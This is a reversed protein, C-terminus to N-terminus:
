SAMSAIITDGSAVSDLSKRGCNLPTSPDFPPSSPNTEQEIGGATGLPEQATDDDPTFDAFDEEVNTLVVTSERRLNPTRTPSSDQNEEGDFITGRPSEQVQTPFFGENGDADDESSGQVRSLSARLADEFVDLVAEQRQASAMIEQKARVLKAKSRKVRELAEHVDESEQQFLTFIINEKWAPCTAELMEVKDKDLEIRSLIEEALLQGRQSLMEMEVPSAAQVTQSEVVSEVNKPDDLMGLLHNIGASEDDLDDEDFLRDWTCEVGGTMLSRWISPGSAVPSAQGSKEVGDKWEIRHADVEVGESGADDEEDSALLSAEEADMVLSIKSASEVDSDVIQEGDPEEAITELNTSEFADQNADETTETEADKKGGGFMQTLTPQFTQAFSFMKSQVNQVAATSVRAKAGRGDLRKNLENVDPLFRSQEPRGTNDVQIAAEHKRWMDRRHKKLKRRVADTQDEYREATKELKLLRKMLNKEQAADSQVTDMVDFANCEATDNTCPCNSCLPCSGRARKKARTPAAKRPAKAPPIDSNNNAPAIATNAASRDRKKREPAVAKAPVVTEKKSSVKADVSPLVTNSRDDIPGDKVGKPPKRGKTKQNAVTAKPETDEAKEVVSKSPNKSKDTGPLSSAGQGKKTIKTTSHDGLQHAVPGVSTVPKAVQQRNPELSALPETKNGVVRTDTAPPSPNNLTYILRKRVVIKTEETFIVGFQSQLAMMVEKITCKGKDSFGSLVADVAPELVARIPQESSKEKIPSDILSMLRARVIKRQEPQLKISLEQEVASSIKNMSVTAIDEKRFARDVCKLLQSSDVDRSSDNTEKELSASWPALIGDDQGDDLDDNEYPRAPSSVTPVTSASRPLEVGAVTATGDSPLKTSPVPVAKKAFISPAWLDDEDDDGDSDLCSVFDPAPLKSVFTAAAKPKKPEADVENDSDSDKFFEKELRDLEPDQTFSPIPLSALHNPSPFRSKTSPKSSSSSRKKRVPRKARRSLNLLPKSQPAENELAM